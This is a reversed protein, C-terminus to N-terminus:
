LINLSVVFKRSSYPFWQQFTNNRYYAGALEGIPDPKLAFTILNEWFWTRSVTVCIRLSIEVRMCERFTEKFDPSSISMIYAYNQDCSEFSLNPGELATEGWVTSKLFSIGKTILKVLRLLIPVLIMPSWLGLFLSYLEIVRLIAVWGGVGGPPYPILGKSFIGGMKERRRRAM